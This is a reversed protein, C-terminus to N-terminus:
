TAQYEIFFVGSMYEVHSECLEIHMLYIYVDIPDIVM